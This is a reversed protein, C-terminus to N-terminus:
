RPKESGTVNLNGALTTSGGDPAALKVYLRYRGPAPAPDVPTVFFGREDRVPEDLFQRWGGDERMLLLEVPRAPGGDIRFRM